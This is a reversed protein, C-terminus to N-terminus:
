PEERELVDFTWVESGSGSSGPSGESRHAESFQASRMWAEFDERSRWRTYVLYRDAGGTPRLLEFAEFGEAESVKGARTAFRREFEERREAAVTIANVVVISM